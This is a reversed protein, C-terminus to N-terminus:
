DRSVLSCPPLTDATFPYPLQDLVPHQSAEANPTPGSGAIDIEAADSVRQLGIYSGM